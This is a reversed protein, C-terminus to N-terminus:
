RWDGDRNVSVELDITTVDSLRDASTKTLVAKPRVDALMFSLREEPYEPDLPLYAAGAKLVGLWGVILELSRPLAIGVVDEPGIEEGILYHALQNARRNLESYTLSDEGCVVAVADPTLEVQEEFLEHVCKNPVFERKTDNWEELIRRQEEHGLIDLRGIAEDANEIMAEVIRVYHRAMQEVRWRDFLDRNYLWTLEVQGGEEKAHVELDFRVPAAGRHVNGCRSQVIGAGGLPCEAYCVRGPIGAARQPEAGAGYNRWWGNLHFMRIGIHM